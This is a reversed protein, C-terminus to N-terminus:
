TNIKFATRLIPQVTGQFESEVTLLETQLDWTVFVFQHAYQEPLYVRENMVTIHDRPEEHTPAVFRIFTIKKNRRTNLRDCEIKRSAPLCRWRLRRAFVEYRFDFYEKGEQNFRDNERDIEELTSFRNKKWVKETFVRNHGEVASNTWPRSPSSFLPIVGLNLLFVVFTGLYRPSRGTGRFSGANDMRFVHPVPYKSWLRLLVEMAFTAKEAQLRQIHYLKFPRYYCSSFITVPISSGFVYKKGIFDASQQIAGLRKMSEAPYLLYVSGGRRKTKPKRSQLGAQRVAQDIQWISPKEADPYLRCYDMQVYESGFLYNHELRSKKIRCIRDAVRSDFHKRARGSKWGRQDDHQSM